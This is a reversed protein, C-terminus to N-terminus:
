PKKGASAVLGLFFIATIPFIVSYGLFSRIFFASLEQVSYDSRIISAKLWMEPARVSFIRGPLRVLSAEDDPHFSLIASILFLALLMLVIGAIEKQLSKMDLFSGKVGKSNKKM